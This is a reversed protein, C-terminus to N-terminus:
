ITAKNGKNAITQTHSFLSGVPIVIVIYCCCSYYWDFDYKKETHTLLLQM